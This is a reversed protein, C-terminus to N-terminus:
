DMSQIKSVIGEIELIAAGHSTKLARSIRKKRIAIKVCEPNKCIYCSRGVFSSPPNLLVEGDKNCTIKFMEGRLKNEGCGQCKRGQKRM